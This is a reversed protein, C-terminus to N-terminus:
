SSYPSGLTTFSFLGCCLISCSLRTIFRIKKIHWQTIKRRMSECSSIKWINDGTFIQTKLLVHEKWSSDMKEMGQLMVQEFCAMKRIKMWDKKFKTCSKWLNFQAVSLTYTKASPLIQSCVIVGFPGIKGRMGGLVISWSSDKFGPSTLYLYLSLLSLRWPPM